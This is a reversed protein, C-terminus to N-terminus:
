KKGRLLDGNVEIRQRKIQHIEDIVDEAYFVESQTYRTGFERNLMEAKHGAAAWQFGFTAISVLGIFSGTALVVGLVESFEDFRGRAGSYWFLAASLIVGLITAIVLYIM